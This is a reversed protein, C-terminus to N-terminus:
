PTKPYKHTTKLWSEVRVFDPEAIDRIKANSENKIIKLCDKLNDITNEIILHPKGESHGVKNAIKQISRLGLEVNIQERYKEPLHALAIRVDQFSKNISGVIRGYYQSVDYGYRKRRETESMYLFNTWSKTLAGKESQKSAKRKRM